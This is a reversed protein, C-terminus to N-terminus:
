HETVTAMTWNRLEKWDQFVTPIERTKNITRFDCSIRTVDAKRDHNGIGIM